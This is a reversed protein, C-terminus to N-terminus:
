QKARNNIPSKEERFPKTLAILSLLPSAGIIIYFPMYHSSQYIVGGIYPAVSAAMTSAMQSVSIWRGRSAEPAISGVSAGMLSWLMYSAGNLFSAFILAFFNGFCIFLGFSFGGILLAITAAVMKGWRDGAKGLGISFFASGLFGISGLVGIHVSELGYVDQFFQVTFPRVLNLVFFVAAFFLSLLVIKKAHPSDSGSQETRRSDSPREARQSRIFLLVIMAVAYLIFSLFFVSRIGIFASLYGGLGPSFIYGLMWSASMLTYTLTVKDKRAFTVVYASTAPGSIFFGYLGMVPFLQTWHTAASFMLPLPVWIIWGLIMVKKRDFRDALFGGPIITLAASLMFVSFLSGVDASSAELSRIYLPLIYAYLGDGFAGVFNSVFILKLDRNLTGSPLVLRLVGQVTVNLWTKMKLLLYLLLLLKLKGNITPDFLNVYENLNGV